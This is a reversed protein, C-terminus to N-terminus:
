DTNIAGIKKGRFRGQPRGFQVFLTIIKRYSSFSNDTQNWVKSDGMGLWNKFASCNSMHCIFSGTVWEKNCSLMVWLICIASACKWCLKDRDETERSGMWEM